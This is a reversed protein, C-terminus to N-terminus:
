AALGLVALLVAVAEDESSYRAPQNGQDHARSLWSYTGDGNPVVIGLTKRGFRRLILANKSRQWRPTPDREISGNRRTIELTM